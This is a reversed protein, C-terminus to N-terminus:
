GGAIIQAAGGAAIAVGYPAPAAFAGAVAQRLAGGRWLGAATRGAVLAIGLLGGAFATLVLFSPVAAAPLWLALAAALKVDGGGMVGLAFLAAGGLLVALAAALVTVAEGPTASLTAILGGAALLATLGNPIVRWRLDCLAAAALLALPVAALPTM